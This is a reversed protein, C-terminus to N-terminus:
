DHDIRHCAFYDLGLGALDTYTVQNETPCPQGHYTDSRLLTETGTLQGADNSTPDTLNFFYLLQISRDGSAWKNPPACHVGLGPVFFCTWGSATLQSPTLGGQDQAGASMPLALAAAAALSIMLRSM